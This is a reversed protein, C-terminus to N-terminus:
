VVFGHMHLQHDDEGACIVSLVMAAALRVFFHGREAPVPSAKPVNKLPSSATLTQLSENDLSSQAPTNPPTDQQLKSTSLSM